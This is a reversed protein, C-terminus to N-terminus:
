AMVEGFSGSLRSLHHLPTDNSLRLPGRSQLYYGDVDSIEYGPGAYVPRSAIINANMRMKEFARSLQHCETEASGV